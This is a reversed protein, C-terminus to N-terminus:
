SVVRRVLTCRTITEALDTYLQKNRLLLKASFTIQSATKPFLNQWQPRVLQNPFNGLLKLALTLALHSLLVDSNFAAGFRESSVIMKAYPTGAPDLLVM